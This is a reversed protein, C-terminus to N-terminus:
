HMLESCLGVEKQRMSKRQQSLVSEYSFTSMSRSLSFRSTTDGQKTYYRNQEDESIQGVKWSVVRKSRLFRRITAAHMDNFFDVEYSPLADMDTLKTCRQNDDCSRMLETKCHLTEGNATWPLALFIVQLLHLLVFGPKRM